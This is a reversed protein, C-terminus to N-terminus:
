DFSELRALEDANKEILDALKFLLGARQTASLKSWPGEFARRAAIVAKNVDAEDSEAIHAIVDGSTPDISEFTRHSAADVWENNILLKTPGIKIKRDGATMTASM